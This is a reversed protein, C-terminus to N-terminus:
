ETEAVASYIENLFRSPVSSLLQPPAFGARLALARFREFSLPYPVWPNGSDSNYEVLILRGETKLRARVSQLVTLKSAGGRSGPAPVDDPLYHLANAIVVGDLPPLNTYTTSHGQADKHPLVLSRTFDENLFHVRSDPFMANFARAQEVLRARDRDISYIEGEEGILERLALTFAGSGSGFDAWVGGTQAVGGRLLNVHDQHEM